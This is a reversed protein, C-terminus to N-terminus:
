GVRRAEAPDDRRQSLEERRARQLRDRREVVIQARERARDRVGPGLAARAPQEAGLRPPAELGAGPGAVRGDERGVGVDAPRQPPAALAHEPGRDVGDLRELGRRGLEVGQQVGGGGAGVTFEASPSRCAM